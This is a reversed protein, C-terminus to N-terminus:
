HQHVYKQKRPNAFYTLWAAHVSKGSVTKFVLTRHCSEKNVYKIMQNEKSYVLFHLSDNKLSM